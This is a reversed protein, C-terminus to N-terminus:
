TLYSIILFAVACYQLNILPRVIPVIIAMAGVLRLAHNQIQREFEPDRFLLFPVHLVELFPDSFSSLASRIDLKQLM